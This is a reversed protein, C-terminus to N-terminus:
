AAGKKRMVVCPEGHQQVLRGQIPALRPMPSGCLCPGPLLSTVDGTRYRILPMGERTLTTITVEGQQFFPLPQQTHIDLIEVLLELDRMHYGSHAKCEVGGGYGTETMGYHDLVVLGRQKHLATAVAPPLHEGSSLIGYLHLAFHPTPPHLLLEALTALQGPLAVIAHPACTAIDATLSAATAAPNGSTATIGGEALAECLLRNVGHPREGWPWLVLVRQGAQVLESMGHRFFAKSAALDAATVAIRKPPGSTGSTHLTVLREIHRQSVCVFNHWEGIDAPTTCPLEPLHALTLRSADVGVLRQRYFRSHSQAYAVLRRLRLTQEQQVAQPLRAPPVPGCAHYLLTDMVSPSCANHQQGTTNQPVPANNPQNSPMTM